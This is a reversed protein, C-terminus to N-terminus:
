AAPKWEKLFAPMHGAERPGITITWDPLEEELEGKITALYGPILLDRHKVKDEIGTLKGLFRRLGM